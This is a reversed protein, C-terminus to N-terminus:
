FVSVYRHEKAETLYKNLTEDITKLLKGTSVSFIRIRRDEGFTAFMTGKPNIALCVPVTRMKLLLCKRFMIKTLMNMFPPVGTVTAILCM